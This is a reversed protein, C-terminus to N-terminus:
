SSQNGETTSDGEADVSNSQDTHASDGRAARAAEAAAASKTGARSRAVWGDINRQHGRAVAIQGPEVDHTLASGAGVYAGDGINVPAVLVSDSGVFSHKGVTTHHKAVGDYNAFITGAGINAGEGITADGCYTLHPVKAGEGINANKTEVFGGIKGKAGLVTGPRLYSYPGVTAEAGIKAHHVEARVISAADAVESHAITVEPGLTCGSGITTAGLLQTGPLITTDQGISVDVDIWTSAPDVITVGARMHTECVRQNLVRGLSALQVRDNVGETQWLDEVVHADVKLGESRAISVVDTLYKEGQANQDTVQELASRLVAADFAYIGANIEDIERQEDTADKHEVIAEVSGDRDRVVRGYGFPNPVRASVLTIASGSEAHKTTLEVLTQGTLLPVDGSTVLVTGELDAPLSALGCEVARGTGKIEDQDAFLLGTDLIQCQEVVRDRQHRVVVAVFESETHRAARIAHGVLALGGIPHLVKPLDSKMRTGEGAALIVVAAPRTANM